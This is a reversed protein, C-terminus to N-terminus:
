LNIIDATSKMKTYGYHTLLDTINKAGVPNMSHVAFGTIQIQNEVIWKAVDYGSIGYGLDHDFSIFIKCNPIKSLSALEKIAEEGTRCVSYGTVDYEVPNISSLRKLYQTNILREDDLWIFHKRKM